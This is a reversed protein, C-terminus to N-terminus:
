ADTRTPPAALGATCFALLARAVSEAAPIGDPQIAAPAEAPRTPKLALVVAGLSAELRVLLERASVAPLAQALAHSFRGTVPAADRDLEESLFPQPDALERALLRPFSRGGAPTENALRFIPRLYADLIAPCPVPHEGALQEAQSLLRLREGNVSRMRRLLVHRYLDEKSRFHYNIGSVNVGAADTIERISAAAFGREAFLTEAADCIRDKTSRPDM